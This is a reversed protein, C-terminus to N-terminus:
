ESTNLLQKEKKAKELYARNTVWPPGQPYGLGKGETIRSRWPADGKTTGWRRILGNQPSKQKKEKISFSTLSYPMSTKTVCIMNEGGGWGV